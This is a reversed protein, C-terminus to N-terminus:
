RKLEVRVYDITIADVNTNAAKQIQFFPQLSATYGSMSFTTSAAVRVGDIFFKVNSKGGSFDIYFKKYVTALTAGTSILGSDVVNDDTEVTVATTSTAGTMRFNARASISGITDNRASCLGFGLTTGSTCGSVKVRAEFCVVNDIDFCLTDGFSLCVNEVESTAALTMAIEGTASPTVSAYTPAGAASTDAIAWPTGQGATSYTDAGWFDDEFIAFDQLGAM